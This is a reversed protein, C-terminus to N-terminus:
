LTLMTPVASWNKLPLSQLLYKFHPIEIPVFYHEEKCNKRDDDKQYRTQLLASLQAYEQM